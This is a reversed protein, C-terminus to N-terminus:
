DWIYEGGLLAIGVANDSSLDMDDFYVIIGKEELKESIERRIFRSASVGGSMIVDKLGTAQSTQILLESVADSIRTMIERIFEDRLQTELAAPSIGRTLSTLKNKIQTDIGSLNVKGDFVKIPTLMGSTKGTSCAIEDMKNGCPFPFGMMVGARDLVQGFSIDKTGGVLEIDYFTNEGSFTSYGETVTRRRDTSAPVIKLIECTGGSFHCALYKELYKMESFARIAEIHGEQHSFGIVPVQLFIGISRAFNEGSLFCPMYSGSVPRPKSAYSIASIKGYFNSMLEEFLEPLNKMHQFVADSQRLGKEGAKVDLLRRLDSIISRGNLVAVSTKYNSTDIGLIYKEDGM